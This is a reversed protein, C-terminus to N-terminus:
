PCIPEQTTYISGFRPDIMDSYSLNSMSEPICNGRHVYLKLKHEKVSNGNLGLEVNVNTLGSIEKGSISTGNWAFNPDQTDFVVKGNQKIKLKFHSIEDPPPNLSSIVMQYVDNLHDGNPTIVMPFHYSIGPSGQISHAQADFDSLEAGNQKACSFLSGLGLVLLLIIYRNVQM